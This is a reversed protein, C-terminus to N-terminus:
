VVRGDEIRVVVRYGVADLMVAVADAVRRVDCWPVREATFYRWNSQASEITVMAGEPPNFYQLGKKCSLFCDDGCQV